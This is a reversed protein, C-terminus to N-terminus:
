KWLTRQSFGALPSSPFDRIDLIRKLRIEGGASAAIRRRNQNLVEAVGSGVVGYGMIAAYITNTAMPNLEKNKQIIKSYLM